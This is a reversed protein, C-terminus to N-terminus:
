ELEVRDMGLIEALDNRCKLFGILDTNYSLGIDINITIIEIEVSLFNACSIIYDCLAYERTNEGFEAIVALMDSNAKSIGDLLDKQQSMLVMADLKLEDANEKKSATNRWVAETKLFMDAAAVVQRGSEQLSGYADPATASITPEAAPEQTPAAVPAACGALLSLAVLLVILKKM